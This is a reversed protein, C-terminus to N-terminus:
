GGNRAHRAPEAHPREQRSVLQLTGSTPSAIAFTGTSADVALADPQRVTPLTATHTPTALPIETLRNSATLTVGLVRRTPDVAIAYPAGPLPQHAVPHLHPQTSYTLLANGTTDVVFVLDDLTALHTAGAPAPVSAIRRLTDPAYLELVHRPGSLVALHTASDAPAIATVATAFHDTPGDRGLVDVQGGVTVFTRGLAVAASAPRPGSSVAVADRGIEGQLLFVAPTPDGPRPVAGPVAVRRAVRGSRAGVLVLRAPDHVAVAFQRGLVDAGVADPRAGVRVVRGAPRRTLPPSAAPGAAATGAPATTTAAPARTTAAPAAGGGGCGALTAAALTAAGLSGIRM